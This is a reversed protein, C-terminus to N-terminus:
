ANHVLLWSRACQNIDNVASCDEVDHIANNNEAENEKMDITIQPEREHTSRVCNNVCLKLKGVNGEGFLNSIKVLLIVGGHFSSREM